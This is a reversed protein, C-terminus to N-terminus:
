PIVRKGTATSHEYRALRRRLEYNESRVSALQQELQTIRTKDATDRKPTDTPDLIEDPAKKEELGLDAVGQLLRENFRENQVFTERNFGCTTAVATKNVKGGRSPLKLGAGKLRDLYQELKSYNDESVQQFPNLSM